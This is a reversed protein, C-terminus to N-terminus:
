LILRLFEKFIKEKLYMEITNELGDLYSIPLSINHVLIDYANQVGNYDFNDTRNGIETISYVYEFEGNLILVQESTSFM